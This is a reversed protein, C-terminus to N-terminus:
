QATIMFFHPEGYVMALANYETCSYIWYHEQFMNSRPVEGGAQSPRFLAWHSNPQRLSCCAPEGRCPSEASSDRAAARRGSCTRRLKPEGTQLPPPSLIAHICEIISEAGVAYATRGGGVARGALTGGCRNSPLELESDARPCKVWGCRRMGTDIRHRPPPRRTPSSPGDNRTSGPGLILTVMVTVAHMAVIKSAASGSRGPVLLYPQGRPLGEGHQACLWAAHDGPRGPAVTVQREPQGEGARLSRPERSPTEAGAPGHCGSLRM